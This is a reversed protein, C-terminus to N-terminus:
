ALPNKLYDPLTLYSILGGPYRVETDIKTAVRVAKDPGDNPGIIFNGRHADLDVCEEPLHYRVAELLTAKLGKRNSLFKLLGPRSGEVYDTIIVPNLNTALPRTPFIAVRVSVAGLLYNSTTREDKPMAELGLHTATNVAVSRPDLGKHGLDLGYSGGRIKAVYKGNSSVIQATTGYAGSGIYELGEPFRDDGRSSIKLATRVVDDPCDPAVLAHVRGELKELVEWGTTDGPFLKARRGEITAHQM